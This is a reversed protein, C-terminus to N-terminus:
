SNAYESLRESLKAIGQPTAAYWEAYGSGAVFWYGEDYEAEGRELIYQGNSYFGRERAEIGSIIIAIREM